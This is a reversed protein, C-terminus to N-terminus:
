SNGCFKRIVRNEHFQRKKNLKRKQKRGIKVM